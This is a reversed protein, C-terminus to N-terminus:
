SNTVGAAPPSDGSHFHTTTGARAAYEWEAETPLRYTRGEKQSLWTCFAVAEHWSIGSAYPATDLNGVYDPRFKRFQEATVEEDAIFFGRTLTVRHVPHEDWDGRQLYEAVEFVELPTPLSEGMVFSGSAIPKMRMGLSNEFSEAASSLAEGMVFLLSLLTPKRLKLVM